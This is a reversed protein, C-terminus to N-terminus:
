FDSKDNSEGKMRRLSDIMPKKLFNELKSKILKREKAFIILQKVEEHLKLSGKIIKRYEQAVKELDGTKTLFSDGQVMITDPYVELIEEFAMDMDIFMLESFKPMLILQDPQYSGKQVPIVYGKQYLDDVEASTWGKGEAVWKYISGGQTYKLKGNGDKVMKETFLLYLLLFQNTSLKHKVLFNVYETVDDLINM